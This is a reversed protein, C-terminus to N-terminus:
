RPMSEKQTRLWAAVEDRRVEVQDGTSLDKVAVNGDALERPALLVGWRAGARDAAAWQKRMARGGYARDAALGQVRLEELLVTAEVGGVSDVVFADLRSGRLPLVGEADCALLLREIGSGFGIGPTRPGDMEEALGDYRGGGGIADNAADLAGSAFEFVTDTYYDLGRVLRPEIEFPVGVARLGAQVADFHLASESSLYELIQPAREIMEAWDERKSDLIRLPNVEARPLEAGLLAAHGRWYGLLVERYRDRTARDGLSNALVRIDQLGLDRYFGHLLTIMEVDVAPDEVGLAEAGLQWHQRYRGAQPAEARFNPAVYWVKWPTVPRHQVYARVVSATGEPRLALRRGGRDTFAYMEKSVVDTHEGVREFVEYHEVVPTVILGYGFREARAAFRSIVDVWRGSDPPLVDLMGKPARFVDRDGSM